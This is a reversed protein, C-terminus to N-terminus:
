INKQKEYGKTTTKDKIQTEVAELVDKVVISRLCDYTGYPCKKKFCPSCAMPKRLIIHGDGYPRTWDPSTSGFIAIVRTKVAAAIHMLGSDNSIFVNCRQILYAMQRLNAEPEIIIPLNQMLNKIRFAVKKEMLGVFIFIKADYKDILEDCLGAYYEKPWRKAKGYIAGPAIGVVLDEPNIRNKELIKEAYFQDETNIGLFLEKREPEIGISRIIDLYNEVMHKKRLQLSYNVAKTLFIGRHRVNFGVRYKIGALFVFLAYMFYHPLIIAIDFHSNKMKNILKFYSFIGKYASDTDLLWIEDIFPNTEWLSSVYPKVAMVLRASPFTERLSGVLPIAMITDGVWNPSFILIKNIQM